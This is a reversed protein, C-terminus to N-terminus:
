LSYVLFRTKVQEEMHVLTNKGLIPPTETRRWPILGFHARHPTSFVVSPSMCCPAPPLLCARFEEADAGLIDFLTDEYSTQDPTDKVMKYAIRPIDDYRCDVCLPFAM